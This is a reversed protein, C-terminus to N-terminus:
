LQMIFYLSAYGDLKNALESPMDLEEFPVTWGEGKKFHESVKVLSRQFIHMDCLEAISRSAMTLREYFNNADKKIIFSAGCTLCTKCVEHDRDIIEWDHSQSFPVSY